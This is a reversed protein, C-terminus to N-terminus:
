FRLAVGVGLVTGRSGPDDDDPDQGFELALSLGVRPTVAFDGGVGLRIVFGSQSVDEGSTEDTGSAHNFVIFPAAHVAYARDGTVAGRVGAGVGVPVSIQTVGDATFGGGGVFAALGLSSTSDGAGGFRLPYAGRAGAALGGGEQLQLYGLGASVKWRRSDPVWSGAAVYATAERALGLNMGGVRGPHFFGNEVVPLGPFQASAISLPTMLLAVGAACCMTLRATFIFRPDSARPREACCNAIMIRM